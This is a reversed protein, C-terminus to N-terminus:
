AELLKGRRPKAGNEHTGNAREAEMKDALEAFATLMSTKARLTMSLGNLLGFVRGVMLLEPPMAKLRNNRIVQTVDEYSEQFVEGEAWGAGSEQMQRAMKGVYADGLQEYGEASDTETRFGLDRFASGM